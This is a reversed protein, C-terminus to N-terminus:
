RLHGLSALGKLWRREQRLTRRLNMLNQATHISFWLYAEVWQTFKGHGLKHKVWALHRGILYAHEALNRGLSVIDKTAEDLSAPANFIPLGSQAEM